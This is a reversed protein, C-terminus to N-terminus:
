KTEEVLESVTENNKVQLQSVIAKIVEASTEYPLKQLGFLIINLEQETLELTRKM